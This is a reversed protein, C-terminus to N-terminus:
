YGKYDFTFYLITVATFLMGVEYVVSPDIRYIYMNLIFLFILIYYAIDKIKKLMVKSKLKNYTAM